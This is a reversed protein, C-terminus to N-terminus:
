AATPLEFVPIEEPAAQADFAVRHLGQIAVDGHHVEVPTAETSRDVVEIHQVPEQEAPDVTTM